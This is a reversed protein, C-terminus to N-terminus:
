ERSRTRAVEKTEEGSPPKLVMSHDYIVKGVHGVHKSLDHDVFIPIDYKDCVRCLFWDEGEFDDIEPCWTIGFHPRPIRQFYFLDLLMVGAGARWVREVGEQGNGSYVVEGKHNTSSFKRATTSCPFKKTAVNAVVVPKKHALLQHLTFHPFVQDTDVFLLHTCPVELAKNLIRQRIQPLISGESQVLCFEQSSADTMPKQMWFTTM